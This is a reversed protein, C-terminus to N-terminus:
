LGSVPRKRLVINGPGSLFFGGGCYVNRGHYPTRFHGHHEPLRAPRQAPLPGSPNEGPEPGQIQGAACLGLSNGGGAPQPHPLRLVLSPVPGGGDPAPHSAGDPGRFRRKKGRFLCRFQASNWSECLFDSDFGSVALIGPHLQPGDGGPLSNQGPAPGGDLRVPDGAPCLGCFDASIGHRGFDAYQGGPQFDSGTRGNQIQLLHRLGREIGSGALPRVPHFHAPGSGAPGRGLGAAGPVNEGGPGWLLVGAPGGAGAPVCLIGSGVAFVPEFRIFCPKEVAEM